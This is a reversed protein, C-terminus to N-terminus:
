LQCQSWCLLHKNLADTPTTYDSHQWQEESLMKEHQTPVTPLIKLAKADELDGVTCVDPQRPLPESTFPLPSRTVYGPINCIESHKKCFIGLHSPGPFVFVKVDTNM